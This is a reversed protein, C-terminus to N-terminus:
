IRTARGHRAHRVKRRIPGAQQINRQINPGLTSRAGAIRVFTLRARGRRDVEGARGGEETAASTPEAASAVEDTVEAVLDVCGSV